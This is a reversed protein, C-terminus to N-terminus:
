PAAGAHKRFYRDFRAQRRAAESPSLPRGRRGGGALDIVWCRGPDPQWLLNAPHLDPLWVGADFLRALMAAAAEMARVDERAEFVTVAGPVEETVLHQRWFTGRRQALALLVCPTDIARNRLSESLAAERFLRAPSLYRDGQLRGFFGGHRNVRWVGRRGGLAVVRATGRGAGATEGSLAAARLRGAGEALWASPDLDLGRRLWLRVGPGTHADFADPPIVAELSGAGRSPPFLPSSSNGGMGEAAAPLPGGSARTRSM